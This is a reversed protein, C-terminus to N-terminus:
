SVMLLHLNGSSPMEFHFQRAYFFPLWPPLMLRLTGALGRLQKMDPETM